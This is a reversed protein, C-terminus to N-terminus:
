RAGVRLDGRPMAGPATELAYRYPGSSSYSPCAADTGVCPRMRLTDVRGGDAAFFAIDLPAPVGAMTFTATSDEDFVFLMGDYPAADARGRLGQVREPLSDAVVVRLTRDGVRVSDATFGGFPPSAAVAGSVPAPTTTATSSTRSPSSPDDDVARWAVLAIGAFVLVAGAVLVAARRTPSM